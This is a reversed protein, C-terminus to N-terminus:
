ENNRYMKLWSILSWIGNALYLGSVVPMWILGVRLYLVINAANIGMWVVWCEWRKQASLFQALLTFMFIYADLWPSPDSSRVELLHALGSSLLIVTLLLVAWKGGSLSSVKLRREDVSSREHDGPHTWRYHGYANISLSVVQLAMAALLKQKWFLVFLFVNYVYGLWFNGTSNRGALVVCGLGLAASIIEVVDM